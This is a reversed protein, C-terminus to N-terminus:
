KCSSSRGWPHYPQVFNDRRKWAFMLQQYDELLSSAQSGPTGSSRPSPTPSHPLRGRGKEREEKGEGEGKRGGGWGRKREKGRRTKQGQCMNERVFVCIHFNSWFGSDKYLLSYIHIQKQLGSHHWKIYYKGSENKQFNMEKKWKKTHIVNENGMLQHCRRQKQKRSSCLLVLYTHAPEGYPPVCNTYVSLLTAPDYPRDLKVNKPLRWM